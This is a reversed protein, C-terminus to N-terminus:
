QRSPAREVSCRLRYKEDLHLWHYRHAQVYDGPAMKTLLKDWYFSDRYNNYSSDYSVAGELRPAAHGELTGPIGTAPSINFEVRETQGLPDTASLSRVLLAGTSDFEDAVVNFTTTGYPTTMAVLQGVDNYTFSSVIGYPDQTSQLYLEGEVPTYTFTATRGYPDEVSTVLHDEGPYDYHFETPLGTADIIRHIKTPDTTDYEIAVENGQPDVIRSMYATPNGSDPDGITQEYYTVSGDPSSLSYKGGDYPGTLIQGTMPNGPDVGPITITSVSVSGGGGEAIQISTSAAAFSVWNTTFSGFPSENAGQTSDRENYDVEVRVDPGYAASYGIPTDEVHLSAELVHFQYSAMASGATPHDLTQCVGGAKIDYKAERGVEIAHTFGKGYIEATDALSAKSWGHPLPGAPVLFYGSAERDIAASKIWTDEGFTPDKLLLKRDAERLLAAFHNLKWHVVAPVIIPAGVERKAIQLKLGLEASMRYVEPLSFGKPPSQHKELFSTASKGLNAKQERAVNLVAYPGCRFSEGPRNRMMWAGETVSSMKSRAPGTLKRKRAEELLAEVEAQRGIRANMTAAEALALNAFRKSVVDDGGKAVDWAATWHALAAQFYGDQFSLKALIMHLVAAWRSSPYTELFRELAQLRRGDGWPEQLAAALTDTEPSTSTGPVPRLHVPMFTVAHLEADSPHPGVNRTPVGWHKPHEVRAKLKSPQTRTPMPPQWDPALTLSKSPLATRQATPDFHQEVVPAGSDAPTSKSDTAGSCGALLVLLIAGVAVLLYRTRHTPNM